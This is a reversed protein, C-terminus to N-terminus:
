RPGPTASRCCGGCRSCSSSRSSHLTSRRVCSVCPASAILEGGRRFHSSSFFSLVTLRAVRSVSVPTDLPSSSASLTLLKTPSLASSLPVEVLRHFFDSRPSLLSLFVTRPSFVQFFGAGKQVLPRRFHILAAGPFKLTLSSL